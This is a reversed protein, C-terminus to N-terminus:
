NVVVIYPKHGTFRIAEQSVLSKINPINDLVM